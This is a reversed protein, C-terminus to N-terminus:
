ISQLFPQCSEKQRTFDLVIKQLSQFDSDIDMGLPFPIANAGQFSALCDEDDTLGNVMQTPIKSGLSFPVPM